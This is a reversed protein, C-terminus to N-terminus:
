AHVRWALLPSGFLLLCVRHRNNTKTDARPKPMLNTSMMRSFGPISWLIIPYCSDATPMSIIERIMKVMFSLGSKTLVESMGTRMEYALHQDNFYQHDARELLIHLFIEPGSKISFNHTHPHTHTHIHTYKCLTGLASMTCTRCMRLTFRQGLASM